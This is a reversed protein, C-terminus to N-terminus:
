ALEALTLGFQSELDYAVGHVRGMGEAICLKRQRVDAVWEPKAAEARCNAVIRLSALERDARSLDASLAACEARIRAATPAAISGNQVAIDFMLALARQSYLGYADMWRRASALLMGAHKLQTNQFEPSRGLAKFMGRWPENIAHTRTNEIARAFALDDDRGGSDLVARLTDLHEHFIGALVEPYSALAEKLLPQLSGQGFNWQAVGFSLGQGDFDGSLGAFCEPFLSGTEFSGTLAMCRSAVPEGLLANAPVPEAAFLLGWTIPGVRGDPDADRARQFAKVAGETGGGFAGDIPGRYLGLEALRTQIRRVPDGQSGLRYDNV